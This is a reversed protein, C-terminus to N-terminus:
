YSGPPNEQEGVQYFPSESASKFVFFDTGKVFHQGFITQFLTHYFNEQQLGVCGEVSNKHKIKKLSWQDGVLLFGGEIEAETLLKTCFWSM